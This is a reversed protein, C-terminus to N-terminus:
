TRQFLERFFKFEEKKFGKLLFIAVGYIAVGAVVTLITASTGQPSMKWIALSMVASAILSKIIFRWDISFKFEKFSYYTTLGLALAYAILTTIAAAFIGWHPVM